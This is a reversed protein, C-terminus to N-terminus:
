TEIDRETERETGREIHTHTDRERERDLRRNIPFYASRMNSVYYQKQTKLM